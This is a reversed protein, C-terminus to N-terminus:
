FVDDLDRFAFGCGRQQAFKKHKHKFKLLIDDLDEFIGNLDGFIEYLDRLIKDSGGFVDDVIKM